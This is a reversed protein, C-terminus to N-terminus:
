LTLFSFIFLYLTTFLNFYIYYILSFRLCVFIFLLTAYAANPLSCSAASCFGLLCFTLSRRKCWGGSGGWGGGGVAVGQFFFLLSGFEFCNFIRLENGNPSHTFFLILIRYFHENGERSFGSFHPGSNNKTKRRHANFKGPGVLPWLSAATPL